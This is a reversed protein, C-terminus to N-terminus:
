ALRKSQSLTTSDSEWDNSPTNIEILAASPQDHEFSWRSKVVVQRGDRTAHVLKGEWRGNRVLESDIVELPKPFQTRLLDHSVRGIAEEKRWGYLTEAGHNWFNITGGMTRMIVSDHVLDFFFELTAMTEGHTRM